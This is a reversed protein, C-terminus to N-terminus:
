LVGRARLPGELALAVVAAIEDYASLSPHIFDFFKVGLDDYTKPKLVPALDILIRGRERCYNEIFVNFRDIAALGKRRGGETRFDMGDWLCYGDVRAMVDDYGRVISEENYDAVLRFHAIVLHDLENLRDLHAAWFREGRENYLLNHWGGHVAAAVLPAQANLEFVREVIHDMMMGEIAGNLTQCPNLEIHHVFSDGAGGHVVSDGFLGVVPLGDKIEPGQCGYRNTRYYNIDQYIVDTSPILRRKSYDLYNMQWDGFEFVRESEVFIQRRKPDKQSATLENTRMLVRAYRRARAPVIWGAGLCAGCSPWISEGVWRQDLRFACPLDVHPDLISALRFADAGSRRGLKASGSTFAWGRGM